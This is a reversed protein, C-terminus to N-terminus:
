SDSWKLAGVVWIDDEKVDLFRFLKAFRQTSSVSCGLFDVGFDM